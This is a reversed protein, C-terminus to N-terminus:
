VITTEVFFKLFSVNGYYIHGPYISEPDIGERQLIPLCSLDGDKSIDGAKLYGLKLPSDDQGTHLIAQGFGKNQDHIQCLDIVQM